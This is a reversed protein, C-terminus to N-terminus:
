DLGGLTEIEVEADTPVTLRVSTPSPATARATRAPETRAPEKKASATPKAPAPTAPAPEPVEADGAGRDNEVPALDEDDRGPTAPHTQDSAADNRAAQAEKVGASGCAPLILVVAALLIMALACRIDWRVRM